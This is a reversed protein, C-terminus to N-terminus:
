ERTKCFLDFHDLLGTVRSLNYFEPSVLSLSTSDDRVHACTDPPRKIRRIYISLLSRSFNFFSSLILLENIRDNAESTVDSYVLPSYYLLPVDIRSPFAMACRPAGRHTQQLLDRSM